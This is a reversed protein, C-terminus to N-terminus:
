GDKVVTHIRAEKRAKKGFNKQSNKRRTPDNKERSTAFAKRPIVLEWQPNALAEQMKVLAEWRFRNEARNMVQDKIQQAAMSYKNLM